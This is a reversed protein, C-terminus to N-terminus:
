SGPKVNPNLRFLNTPDYQQKLAVLREYNAGFSARIKEPKDDGALHNVYASGAILPEVQGWLERTWAIHRPSEAPDLWQSLVNVDWKTGRLGVATASAPVRTAAGHIHFLLITSLPSSFARAGAVVVDLLEDSLTETFGSKWYRQIGHVAAPEDLMAQRAVYPMPQV